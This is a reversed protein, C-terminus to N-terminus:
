IILRAIMWSMVTYFSVTQSLLYSTGVWFAELSEGKLAFTIAPLTAAVIVSDMAVVVSTLCLMFAILKFKFTKKPIDASANPPQRKETSGNAVTNSPNPQLNGTDENEEMPVSAIDSKVTNPVADSM